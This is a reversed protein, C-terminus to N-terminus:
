PARPPAKVPIRRVGSGSVFTATATSFSGTQKFYPNATFQGPILYSQDGMMQWSSTTNISTLESELSSTPKWSLIQRTTGSPDVYTPPNPWIAAPESETVNVRLPLGKTTVIVNFSPTLAALVQPRIESLYNDATIDDPSGPDTTVGSIGLLHVGPHVQAYYNAIQLGDTSDSNYLVLVNAPGIAWAAPCSGHLASFIVVLILWQRVRM